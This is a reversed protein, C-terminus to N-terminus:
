PAKKPLTNSPVLLLDVRALDADTLRGAEQKLLLGSSLYNYRSQYYSREAAALAQQANLVEVMTRTGATVGVKNAELSTQDSQIAQKGAKVAAIGSIVGEYADLTARFVDRRQLEYQSNEAEFNFKAQRVVSNTLIGPLLNWNVVLGIQDVVEDAGFVSRSDQHGVSGVASVTPFYKGVAVQVQKKAVERAYWASMIDPNDRIAAKTWADLNAPNPSVLPIDGNLGPLDAVPRNIIEELAHKAVDLARKDIVVASASTDYSAEANQVDVVTVYGVGYKTKAEDLAQQYAAQADLDSKLVDAAALVAFYAEACRYILNQEASRFTAEAEAAQKYSMALTEFASYDFITQTLNLSYGYVNYTNTLAQVAIGPSGSDSTGNLTSSGGQESSLVHLRDKQAVDQAALQPMLATWAQPRVELAADRQHLATQFTQDQAQAETYIDLLANAKSAPAAVLFAALITLVGFRIM